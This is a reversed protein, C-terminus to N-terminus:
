EEEGDVVAGLRDLSASWFALNGDLWARAEAMPDTVLSCRVNRGARRRAVLGAGELVDIHKIIATLSTDFPRALDGVSVEQERTLREVIARRTPDALSAFVNDLM